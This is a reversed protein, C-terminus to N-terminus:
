REPARREQDHRHFAGEDRDEVLRFEVRERAPEGVEADLEHGAAAGGGVDPLEADVDHRHLLDRVDGLEQTPAHLGQVRADVGADEGAPIVLAVEVVEALLLDPGDVEHADVEVGEGADDSALVNALLLRDLHDVDAPRREQPRCGLVEEVDQGDASGLAVAPQERLERRPLDVEAGSPLEGGLGEGM